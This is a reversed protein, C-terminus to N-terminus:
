RETGCEACVWVMEGKDDFHYTEVQEMLEGCLPCRPTNDVEPPLSGFTAAFAAGPTFFERMTCDGCLGNICLETKGCVYCQNEVTM